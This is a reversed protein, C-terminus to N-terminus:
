QAGHEAKKLNNFPQAPLTRELEPLMNLYDISQQLVIVATANELISSNKIAANLLVQLNKIATEKNM